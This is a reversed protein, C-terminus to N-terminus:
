RLYIVSCDLGAKTIRQTIKRDTSPWQKRFLLADIGNSFIWVAQTSTKIGPLSCNHFQAWQSRHWLPVMQFVIKLYFLVFFCLNSKSLQLLLNFACSLYPMAFCFWKIIFKGRIVAWFRAPTFTFYHTLQCCLTYGNTRNVPMIYVHKWRWARQKLGLYQQKDYKVIFAVGSM